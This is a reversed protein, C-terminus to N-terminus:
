SWDALLLLLDTIGVACDGDLDAECSPPCPDACPGWAGLLMLFDTIGM